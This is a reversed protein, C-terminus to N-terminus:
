GQLMSASEDTFLQRLPTMVGLFLFIQAMQPNDNMQQPAATGM